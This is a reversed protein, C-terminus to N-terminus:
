KKDNVPGTISDKLTHYPAFMWQWLPRKDLFLTVEARMGATLPLRNGQRVMREPYIDATVRFWGGAPQGNQGRPASAWANLEAPSAPASPVLAITGPFQGYRASPWADYRVNVADGPHVRPITDGPLWLVLSLRAGEAPVLQALSDGASVMQGETVSLSSVRGAAPATILRSGEASTEAMQRLTDDRRIHYQAIQSDFDAARTLLESRLSLIQQEQQLRQSNLSHWVSQQQYYLYRQNNQQDTTVLGRRRYIDYNEMSRRMIGMGESASRVMHESTGRAELTQTLQQQLGELTARRNKELLAIVEDAQRRQKELLSLTTASLNGEPSVRSTDLRYLPTGVKVVQGTTVLLRSVVGQEPAFLNVTHPWTTVEGTVTVRRTYTGYVLFLALASLVSLTACLTVWLPWGPLLLVQGARHSQQYESVERRFLM